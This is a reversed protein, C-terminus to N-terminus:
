VAMFYSCEVSPLLPKKIEVILFKLILLLQVKGMKLSHHSPM